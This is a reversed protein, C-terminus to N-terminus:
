SKKKKKKTSKGHNRNKKNKPKLKKKIRSQEDELFYFYDDNVCHKLAQKIFSLSLRYNHQVEQGYSSLWYLRAKDIAELSFAFDILKQARALEQNHILWKIYIPYVAVYNTDIAIITDFCAFAKEPEALNRAYIEGLFCLSALHQSDYSLAYNLSQCVDEWDSYFGSSAGKAKLYYTDALTLGM